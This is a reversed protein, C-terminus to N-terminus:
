HAFMAIVAQNWKAAAELSSLHGAQSLTALRSNKAAKHMVESKEPPIIKDQDSTIILIPQVAHQLVGTTDERLAMGRLASAIGTASQADMILGVTQYLQSSANDTLAKPLFGAVFESSGNKLVSLATNERQEKTADSDAGSQTNSLILGGVYEPYRKLFALAIYGGMSEGGIIAKKLRLHDMLAKVQDAYETMTVAQGKTPSSKGFGMLDLTIVNFKKKLGSQQPFWLQQDTPFPHILILPQGNGSETYAISNKNSDTFSSSMANSPLGFLSLIISALLTFKSKFFSM